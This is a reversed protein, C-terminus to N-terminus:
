NITFMAPMVVLRNEMAIKGATIDYKVVEDDEKKESTISM